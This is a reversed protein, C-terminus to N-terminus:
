GRGQNNSPMTANQRGNDPIMYLMGLCQSSLFDRPRQAGIILDTVLITRRLNINQETIHEMMKNNDSSTSSELFAFRELKETYSTKFREELNRLERGRYYFLYTFDNSDLLTSFEDWTLTSTGPYSELEEGAALIKTATPAQAKLEASVTIGYKPAALIWEILDAHATWGSRVLAEVAQSPVNHLVMRGDVYDLTPLVPNRALDMLEQLRPDIEFRVKDLNKMNALKHVNGETLSIHWTKRSGEKEFVWTGCAENAANHFETILESQYPFVAQIDKDVITIACTRDVERIPLRLPIDDLLFYMPNLSLNAWQKEYKTVIKVALVVQRDTMGTNRQIAESVSTIFRKDYAALSIPGNNVSAYRRVTSKGETDIAGYMCLLWDELYHLAM